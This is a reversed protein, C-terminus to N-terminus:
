DLFKSSTIFDFLNENRLYLHFTTSTAQSVPIPPTNQLRNTLTVHSENHRGM